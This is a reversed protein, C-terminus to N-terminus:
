GPGSANEIRALKDLADAVADLEGDYLDAYTHATVTISAHGMAKQLIRLDAGASRALSAYTHRLDHIRLSPYGLAAVQERWRVSRVWNERSLRAGRPSTIAPEHRPRGDIRAQLAPMIVAPIPVSRQGARSKPAGDILKGGVQTM